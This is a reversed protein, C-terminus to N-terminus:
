YIEITLLANGTHRYTHYQLNISKTFTKECHACRFLAQEKAPKGEQNNVTTQEDNQQVIEKTHPSPGERHDDGDCSDTETRFLYTIINEQVWTIFWFPFPTFFCWCLIVM